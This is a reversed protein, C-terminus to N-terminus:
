ASGSPRDYSGQGERHFRPYFGFYYATGGNWTGTEIIYDPKIDYVIEQYTWLDLPCQLTQVGLWFTSGMPPSSGYYIRHFEDIINSEDTGSSERLQQNSARLKRYSLTFNQVMDYDESFSSEVREIRVQEIPLIKCRYDSIRPTEKNIRYIIRITKTTSAFILQIKSRTGSFDNLWQIKRNVEVNNEDLEIVGFYASFPAGALGTFETEVRFKQM